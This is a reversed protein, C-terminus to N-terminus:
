SFNLLNIDCYLSLSHNEGGICCIRYYNSIGVRYDLARSGPISRNNLIFCVLSNTAVRYISYYAIYICMEVLLFNIVLLFGVVFGVRLSAFELTFHINSVTIEECAKKKKNFKCTWRTLKSSLKVRWGNIHFFSTGNSSPNM